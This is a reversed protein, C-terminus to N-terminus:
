FNAKEQEVLSFTFSNTDSQSLEALADSISGEVDRKRIKFSLDRMGAYPLDTSLEPPGGPMLSWIQAFEGDNLYNCQERADCTLVGRVPTWHAGERQLMLWSAVVNGNHDAGMRLRLPYSYNEAFLIEGVFRRVHAPPASLALSTSPSTVSRLDAQSGLFFASLFASQAPGADRNKPGIVFLEVGGMNLRADKAEWFGAERASPIDFEAIDSEVGISTSYIFIRPVGWQAEYAPRSALSRILSSDSFSDSHFGEVQEELRASDLLAKSLKPKFTEQDDEIEARKNSGFFVSLSSEEERLQAVEEVSYLPLCGALTQALGSGDKRAVLITVHERPAFRQHVENSKLDLFDLLFRRWPLNESLAKGTEPIIDREDLIFVSQRAPQDHDLVLCYKDDAFRATAETSFVCILFLASIAILRFLIM